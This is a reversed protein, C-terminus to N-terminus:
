GREADIETLISDKFTAAMLRGAYDKLTTRFLMAVTLLVALIIVVELTGFGAQSLCRKSKNVCNLVDNSPKTCTRKLVNM